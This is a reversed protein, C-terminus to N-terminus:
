CESSLRSIMIPNHENSLSRLVNVEALGYCEGPVNSVDYIGRLLTLVRRLM